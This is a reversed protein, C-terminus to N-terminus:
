AVSWTEADRYEPLQGILSDKLSDCFRKAESTPWGPHECSQYEYGHIAKLGQAASLKHTLPQYVYAATGGQEWLATEIITGPLDKVPEDHYRHKVSAVCESLLMQGVLDTNGRDVTVYQGREDEWRPSYYGDGPYQPARSPGVHALEVLADIHHKSVIYASM